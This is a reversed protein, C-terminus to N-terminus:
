RIIAAFVESLEPWLGKQGLVQVNPPAFRQPDTVGFIGITPCSVAAALHLPGSDNAIALQARALLAAYCALSVHEIRQIHPFLQSARASENPGPCIIPNYGQLQKSLALWHPWTKNQKQKTLGQAFPCLVIFQKPVRHLALVAQAELVAHASLKLQPIGSYPLVEHIGGWRQLADSALAAFKQMEHEGAPSQVRHSLLWSRGDGAYGITKKGALCAILASSFSNTMLVMRQAPLRQLTTIAEGIAKPWEIIELGHASLLSHVWPRGLLRIRWPLVQLLNIAPLAMLTDGVWNPLRVLLQAETVNM